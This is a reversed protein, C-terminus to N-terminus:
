NPNVSSLTDNRGGPSHGVALNQCIGKWYLRRQNQYQHRIAQYWFRQSSGQHPAPNEEIAARYTRHLRVQVFLRRNAYVSSVMLSKKQPHRPIFYTGVQNPVRVKKYLSRTPSPPVPPAPPLMNSRALPPTNNWGSRFIQSQDKRDPSHDKNPDKISTQAFNV